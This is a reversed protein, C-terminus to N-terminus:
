EAIIFELCSWFLIFVGGNLILVEKLVKIFNEIDNESYFLLSMSEERIIFGFSANNQNTSVNDICVLILSFFSGVLLFLGTSDTFEVLTLQELRVHKFLSLKERMSRFFLRVTMM